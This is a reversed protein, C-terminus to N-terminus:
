LTMHYTSLGAVCGALHKIGLAYEHMRNQRRNIVFVDSSDILIDRELPDCSVRTVAGGRRCLPLPDGEERLVGTGRWM